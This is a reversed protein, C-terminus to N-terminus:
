GVEWVGTAPNWVGVVGALVPDLFASAAVTVAQLTPWALGDAQAMKGYPVAWSGPPAPVQLPLEHTRRVSFVLELAAQVRHAELPGLSALLAIDPLDKVRSNTREQPMSYAHFKEALHTERHTVRLVPPPFGLSELYARGLLLDPEGSQLYGFVVDLGFPDGYPRENLFANVTFRVGGYLVGPGRITPHRRHERLEFALRHHAGARHADGPRRRGEGAGPPRLGPAPAGPPPRVRATPPRAQRQHREGDKAAGM